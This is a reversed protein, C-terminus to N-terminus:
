ECGNNDIMFRQWHNTIQKLEKPKQWGIILCLVVMLVFAISVWDRLSMRYHDDDIAVLGFIFIMNLEKEQPAVMRLISEEDKAFPAEGVTMSDYKSLVKQNMGKLFEDM